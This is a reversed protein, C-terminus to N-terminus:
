QRIVRASVAEGNEGVVRVNYLGPALGALNVTIVGPGAEQGKGTVIKGNVDFVQVAQAYFGPQTILINVYDNAPNPWISLAPSAPPAQEEAGTVFAIHIAALRPHLAGGAYRFNGGIYLYDQSAQMTEPMADPAPAWTDFAADGLDYSCLNPRYLNGGVTLFPGSVFLDDNWRAFTRVYSGFGPSFPQVSGSATDVQAVYTRPQGEVQTFWGGLYLSGNYLDMDYIGDDTDCSWLPDAIGTSTSVRGLNARPAGGAQAYFGGIYVQDGGTIIKNVTGTCGPDWSTALSTAIDICAINQRPQTGAVTFNGGIYLSSQDGTMTRVTGNVGPNFASLSRSALDFAALRMRQQGDVASFTGAVFLQTANAHLAAVPQNFAPAWPSPLRTVTNIVCFNKRGIGGAGTFAGGLYVAPSGTAPMMAYVPGDATSKWQVVTGTNDMRILAANHTTDGGAMEFDGGACLLSDGWRELCFVPGAASPAWPLVDFKYNLRALNSRFTADVTSFSGGIYLTSDILIMDRVFGNITANFAPQGATDQYHVRGDLRRICGLGVRQYNGFATFDGGVYILTDLQQLCRVPGNVNPNSQWPVNTYYIIDGTYGDLRALYKVPHGDIVEFAGGVAIYTTAPDYCLAYISGDAHPDFPTLSDNGPVVNLAAGRGRAEANVSVFDGGLFLLDQYLEFCYVAGDPDPHFTTDLAGSPLLRFLNRWNHSGVSGFNGGVYVRGYQDKVMCHVTGPVRLLPQMVDATLSDCAIFHGTVPSVQTFDGGVFLLSDRLLLTKVPGNPSWLATDSLQAFANEGALMVLMLLVSRKFKVM